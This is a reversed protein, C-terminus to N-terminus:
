FAVVICFMMCCASFVTRPPGGQECFLGLFMFKQFFFFRKSVFIVFCTFFLRWFFVFLFWLTCVHETLQFCTYRAITRARKLILAVGHLSLVSLMPQHRLKSYRSGWAPRGCTVHVLTHHPQSLRLSRRRVKAVFHPHQKVHHFLGENPWLCASPRPPSSPLPLMLAFSFSRCSSPLWAVVWSSLAASCRRPNYM